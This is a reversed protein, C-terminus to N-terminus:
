KVMEIRFFVCFHTFYEVFALISIRKSCFWFQHLHCTYLLSASLWSHPKLKVTHLALEVQLNQVFQAVIEFQEVHDHLKSFDIMGWQIVLYSKKKYKVAIKDDWQFRATHTGFADSTPHWNIGKILVWNVDQNFILRYRSQYETSVLNVSPQCRSLGEMSVQYVTLRYNASHGGVWIYRFSYSV